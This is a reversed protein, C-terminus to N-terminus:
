VAVALEQARLKVGYLDLKGTGLSPLSEVPYLNERKPIWLRPLSTESLRRWLEGPSIEPAVYLAVLREGRREDGVATVVCPAEGIVEGIAEEIRVHPVMEGAIKSFRSLRDTIRIFGEDDIAAIDGTIYWGDRFVEATREPHGLYGVMRNSGKLLLLGEQNPPLPDFTVPDVIRAAMGPLPHGITGPKNGALDESGAYISTPNVAAVPAMETCGYGEYLELGFKERFAAVVAERLKEAGTIVLRLSAFDERTCKRIYSSCFTPTAILLAARYKAVMEGVSKAETPNPHYAAGCATVLPFWILTTFGFSHFFPLIGMIRDAPGIWFHQAMADINALVNYHSLMAGKPTGTTGSSFIVTALSDPTGRNHSLRRAPVFRAAALARLKEWTGIGALVDELFVMGDMTEIKAKALFQRSTVVTRIGCQAIASLIAERGATFNLNVPMVGALTAGVNVLAGGVSAPLMVGIADHGPCTRRMWGSVMVGAALVRGYTLERGTSDALALRSWNRRASRIVRLDLRDGPTKRMAAAETSLEQIALRAQHASSSAPMPAGFSVTVPYPFQRPWKWHFRGGQFSFVSGRLPDLHVPIVPVDLGKLIEDFGRKFPLLNSTRSIAGEACIAVLHGEALHRRVARITDAMERPGGGAPIARGLRFLWRSARQEYYPRWALFGISRRAPIGILFGDLHAMHNAVLLAPGRSPLNERGVVRIRFFTRAALRLLLRFGRPM